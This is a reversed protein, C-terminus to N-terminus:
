LGTLGVRPADRPADRYLSVVSRLIYGLQRSDNRNNMKKLIFSFLQMKKKVDQNDQHVRYDFFPPLLCSVAFLRFRSFELM